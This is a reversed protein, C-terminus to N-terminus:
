IVVWDKIYTGVRHLLSNVQLLFWYSEFRWTYTYLTTHTHTKLVISFEQWKVLSTNCPAASDLFEESVFFNSCIPRSTVRCSLHGACNHLVPEVCDQATLLTCEVKVLSKMELSTMEYASPPVTHTTTYFKKPARLAVPWTARLLQLKKTMEMWLFSYFNTNLM